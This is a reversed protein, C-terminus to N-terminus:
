LGVQPKPGPQTDTLVWSDDEDAIWTACRGLANPPLFGARLDDSSVPTAHCLAGVGARLDPDALLRDLMATYRQSSGADHRHAPRLVAVLRRLLELTNAEPQRFRELAEGLPDGASVSKGLLWRFFARIRTM